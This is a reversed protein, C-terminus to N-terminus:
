KARNKQKRNPMVCFGSSSSTHPQWSAQTKKTLRLVFPPYQISSSFQLMRSMSRTIQWLKLRFTGYCMWRVIELHAGLRLAIATSDGACTSRPARRPDYRATEGPVSQGKRVRPPSRSTRDVSPPLTKTKHLLCPLPTQEM